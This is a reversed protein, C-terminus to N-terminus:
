NTITRYNLASDRAGAGNIRLIDFGPPGARSGWNGDPRSRSARSANDHRPGIVNIVGASRRADLISRAEIGASRDAVKPEDAGDMLEIFSGGLGIEM